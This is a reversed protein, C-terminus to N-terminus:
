AGKRLRNYARRAVRDAFAAYILLAAVAGPAIMVYYAIM